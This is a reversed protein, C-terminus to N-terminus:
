EYTCSSIAKVVREIDMTLETILSDHMRRINDEAQSEFRITIAILTFLLILLIPLVICFFYTKYYRNKLSVSKTKMSIFM